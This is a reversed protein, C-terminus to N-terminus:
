RSRAARGRPRPAPRRSAPRRRPSQRSRGSVASGFVDSISEATVAAELWAELRAIRPERDICARVDETVRFARAVLVKRLAVRAEEARGKAVGEARGKAVGEARGKAVGEARGKAVGEARGKALASARAEAQWGRILAQVNPDQMLWDVKFIRRATGPGFIAASVLYLLQMTTKRARKTMRGNSQVEDALAQVFAEDAGQM